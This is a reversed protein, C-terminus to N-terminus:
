RLLIMTGTIHISNDILLRYFYIGTTLSLGTETTGNWPFRHSGKELFGRYLSRVQQGAINFISIEVFANEPLSLPIITENNFPNPYNTGLKFIPELASEAIEAITGVILKFQMIPKSIYISATSSDRLNLIKGSTVDFLRIAMQPDLQELGLFTLTITRGTPSKIQFEWTESIEFHPRIDTAFASYVSDWEPHYFYVQPIPLDIIPKRYEFHDFDYSANENVGCWTADDCYEGDTLVIQIQWDNNGAHLSYTNLFLLTVLFSIRITM